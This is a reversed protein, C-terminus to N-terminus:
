RSLLHYREHPSVVTRVSDYSYDVGYEIRNVLRIHILLALIQQACTHGMSVSGHGCERSSNRRKGFLLFVNVRLSRRLNRWVRSDITVNTRSDISRRLAITSCPPQTTVLCWALFCSLFFYEVCSDPDDATKFAGPKVM